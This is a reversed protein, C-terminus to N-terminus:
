QGTGTGQPHIGPTDTALVNVTQANKAATSANSTLEEVAAATEELTAAQNETRKALDLSKAHIYQASQRVDGAVQKVNTVMKSLREITRNFATGLPAMYSLNSPPVTKSLDGDSLGGLAAALNDIDEQRETVDRALKIVSQVTGTEDRVPCYTAYIFVPNGAKGYRIFQATTEKGDRLDDWFAAYEPSKAYDPDVFISHHKGQIDELDYGMVNLFNSNAKIVTGDPQFMIVAQSKEIMELLAANYSTLQLSSNKATKSTQTRWFSM